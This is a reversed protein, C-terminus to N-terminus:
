SREGGSAQAQFKCTLNIERGKGENELNGLTMLPGPLKTELGLDMMKKTSVM